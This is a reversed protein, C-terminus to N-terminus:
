LKLPTADVYYLSGLEGADVLIGFTGHQSGLNFTAVGAKNTKRATGGSVFYGEEETIGVKVPASAGKVTVKVKGGGLKKATATVLRQINVEQSVPSVELEPDELAEIFVTEETATTAPITFKGNAAAKIEVEKEPTIDYAGNGVPVWKSFTVKLKAPVTKNKNNRVVGEIKRTEGARVACSATEYEQAKNQPGGGSCKLAFSSAQASAALALLGLAAIALAISLTRRPRRSM